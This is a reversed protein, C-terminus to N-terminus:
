SYGNPTLTRWTSSTCNRPSYRYAAHPSFPNMAYSTAFMSLLPNLSRITVAGTLGSPWRNKTLVLYAVHTAEGEGQNRRRSGSPVWGDMPRGDPGLETWDVGAAGLLLSGYLNQSELLRAQSEIVRSLPRGHGNTNM